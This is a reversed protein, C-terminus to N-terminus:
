SRTRVTHAARSASASRRCVPRHGAFPASPDRRQDVAEGLEAHRRDLGSRAVGAASSLSRLRSIPFPAPDDLIGADRRLLCGRMLPVRHHRRRRLPYPRQRLEVREPCFSPRASWSRSRAGAASRRASRSGASFEPDDVLAQNLPTKFYGPAIANVQLGHKGLRHVHRPDAEQRRGQHGHLARHRPARTREARLRHQHDQGPRAPDDPQRRGSRCLVREFIPPLVQEWKEVPFDELPSRLQM